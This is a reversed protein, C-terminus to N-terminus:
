HLSLSKTNEIEKFLVKRRGEGRYAFHPPQTHPVAKLFYTAEPNVFNIISETATYPKTSSHMPDYCISTTGSTEVPQM